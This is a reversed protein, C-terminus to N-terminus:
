ISRPMADTRDLRITVDRSAISTALTAAVGYFGATNMGVLYQGLGM